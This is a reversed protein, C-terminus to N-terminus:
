PVSTKAAELRAYIDRAPRRYKRALQSIAERRSLGGSDTLQRFESVMGASDPIVHNVGAAQPRPGVVITFEGRPENLREALQRASGRLFEQHVKTLERGVMLLREGLHTGLEELLQRIRHPAEFFVVAHDLNSLRQLWETRPKGRNPAFGLFTVPEAQFGSAVLATLVASAGPVPDVRIGAEISSRVLDLGPDSIGPTGADSVLAVSEGALLRKVLQPTRARANHEHFSVTPTRIGHHNLLKATRRTDEAAIVAVDRLVRLARLTIDELNGIPTAVVYLTGSM